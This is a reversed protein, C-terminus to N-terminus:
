VPSPKMAVHFEYDDCGQCGDHEIPAVLTPWETPENCMRTFECPHGFKNCPGSPATNQEWMVAPEHWRQTLRARFACLRLYCDDLQAETVLRPEDHFDAASISKITPDVRVMSYMIEDAHANFDPVWLDGHKVLEIAGGLREARNWGLVYLLNQDSRLYDAVYTKLSRASTTKFDQVSLGNHALEPSIFLEAETPTRKFVRDIRGTVRRLCVEAHGTMEDNRILDECIAGQCIPVTRTTTSGFLPLAVAPPLMFTFAVETAVTIEIKAELKEWQDHFWIPLIDKRAKGARNELETQDMGVAGENLVREFTQFAAIKVAEKESGMDFGKFTADFFAHCATGVHPAVPPQGFRVLGLVDRYYGYRACQVFNMNFSNGRGSDPM